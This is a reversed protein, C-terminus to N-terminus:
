EPGSPESRRSDSWRRKCGAAPARARRRSPSLLQRGVLAKTERSGPRVWGVGFIVLLLALGYIFRWRFFDVIADTM